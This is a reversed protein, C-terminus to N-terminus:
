LTEKMEAPAKWNNTPGADEKKESCIFTFEEVRAVDGPDSRVYISHPRKEPDLFMATGSDVLQHLMRDYEAPTGDCWVVQDPQLLSATEAVWSQLQPHKTMPAAEYRVAPGSSEPVAARPPDPQPQSPAHLVQLKRIM